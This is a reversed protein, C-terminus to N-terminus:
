PGLKVMREGGGAGWARGVTNQLPTRPGKGDTVPCTGKSTPSTRTREGRVLPAGNKVTTHSSKQAWFAKNQQFLPSSGLNEWVWLICNKKCGPALCQPGGASVSSLPPWFACRPTWRCGWLQGSRMDQHSWM